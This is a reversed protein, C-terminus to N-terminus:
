GKGLFTYRYYVCYPRLEKWSLILLDLQTFLSSLYTFLRTHVRSILSLSSVALFPGPDASCRPYASLWTVGDPHSTVRHRHVCRSTSLVLSQLCRYLRRRGDRGCCQTLGACVLTTFQRVGATSTPTNFRAGVGVAPARPRAVCRSTRRVDLSCGELACPLMGPWWCSGM